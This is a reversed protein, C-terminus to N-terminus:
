GLAAVLNFDRDPPGQKFPSGGQPLDRMPTFPVVERVQVSEQKYSNARLFIELFQVLTPFMEERPDEGDDLIFHFGPLDDGKVHIRGDDMPHGYLHITILVESHNIM